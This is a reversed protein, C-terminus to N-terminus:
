APRRLKRTKLAGLLGNFFATDTRTEKCCGTADINTQDLYRPNSRTSFGM